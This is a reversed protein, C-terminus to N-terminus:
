VITEPLNPLIAAIRDGKEIGIKKFSAAVQEVQEILEAYTLTRRATSEGWFVLARSEDCRRLLNKAFSLKTDPFWRSHIMGNEVNLVRAPDGSSRIECFDWVTSWFREPHNISWSYLEK